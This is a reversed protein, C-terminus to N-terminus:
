KRQRSGQNTYKLPAFYTVMMDNFGKARLHGDFNSVSITDVSKVL